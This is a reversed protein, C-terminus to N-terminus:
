EFHISENGYQIKLVYEYMTYCTLTLAKLSIFIYYYIIYSLIYYYVSCYYVVDLLRSLHVCNIFNLFSYFKKIRNQSSSHSSGRPCYNYNNQLYNHTRAVVRGNSSRRLYGINNSYQLWVCPYNKFRIM